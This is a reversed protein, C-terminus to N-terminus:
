SAISFVYTKYSGQSARHRGTQSSMTAEDIQTELSTELVHRAAPAWSHSDCVALLLHMELYQSLLWFM